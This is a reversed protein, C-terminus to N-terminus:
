TEESTDQDGEKVHEMQVPEGQQYDVVENHPIELETSVNKSDSEQIAKSPPQQATESQYLSLAEPPHHLSQTVHPEESGDGTRIQPIVRTSHKGMFPQNTTETASSCPVPQHPLRTAMKFKEHTTFKTNTLEGSTESIVSLFQNAAYIFL